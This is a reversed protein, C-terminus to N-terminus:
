RYSRYLSDDQKGLMENIQVDYLIGSREWMIVNDKYLRTTPMDKLMHKDMYYEEDEDCNVLYWKKTNINSERLAQLYEDCVICEDIYFIYVGNKNNFHM